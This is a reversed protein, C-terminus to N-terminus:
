SRHPLVVAQASQGWDSLLHVSPSMPVIGQDYIYEIMDGCRWCNMSTKTIRLKFLKGFTSIMRRSYSYIEYSIYDSQNIFNDKSITIYKLMYNLLHARSALGGTRMASALRTVHINVKRNSIKQFLSVIKSDQKFIVNTSNCSRSACYYGKLDKKILSQSCDLCRGRIRNDLYRGYVIAHIHHNWGKGLNKSEIVYVGQIKGNVYSSRLFKSWCKRLHDIGNVSDYNEPSITLFYFFNSKTPKFQELYSLYTARIRKQRKRSCRVCTRSNCAWKFQIFRSDCSCSKIINYGTPEGCKQRSIVASLPMGAQLLQLSIAQNGLLAGETSSSSEAIAEGNAQSFSSKSHIM